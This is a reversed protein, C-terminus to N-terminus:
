EKIFVRLNLFIKGWFRYLMCQLVSRCTGCRVRVCMTGRAVCVLYSRIQPHCGLATAVHVAVCQSVCHLMFWCVSCCASCCLSSTISDIPLVRSSAGRARTATRTATCTATRTPTHQLNHRLTNCYINCVRLLLKQPNIIIIAKM